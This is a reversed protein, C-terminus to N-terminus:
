ISGSLSPSTSPATIPEWEPPTEHERMWRFHALISFHLGLVSIAFGETPAWIETGLFRHIVRIYEVGCYVNNVFTRDPRFYAFELNQDGFNLREM